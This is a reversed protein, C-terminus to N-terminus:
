QCINKKMSNISKNKTHGQDVYFYEEYRFHRRFVNKVHIQIVLVHLIIRCYGPYQHLNVSNLRYINKGISSNYNLMSSFFFNVFDIPIYLNFFNQIMFIIRNTKSEVSSAGFLIRHLYNAKHKHIDKGM